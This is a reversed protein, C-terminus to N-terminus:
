SCCKSPKNYVSMYVSGNAPTRCTSPAGSSHVSIIWAQLVPLCMLALLSCLHEGCARVGIFAPQGSSAAVKSQQMGSITQSLPQSHTCHQVPVHMSVSFSCWTTWLGSQMASLLGPLVRQDQVLHHVINVPHHSMVGASLQPAWFRWIAGESLTPDFTARCSVKAADDIAEYQGSAAATAPRTGVAAQCSWSPRQPRM